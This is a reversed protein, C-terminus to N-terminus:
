STLSDLILLRTESDLMKYEPEARLKKANELTKCQQAFEVLLDKFNYQQALLLKQAGNLTSTRLVNKCQELVAPMIFRDALKLIVKLNKDTIPANSPYIVSLLQLIEKYEVEELEIEDERGEKFESEFM